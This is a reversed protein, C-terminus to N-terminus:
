TWAQEQAARDLERRDSTPISERGALRDPNLRSSVM